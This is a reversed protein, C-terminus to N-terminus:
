LGGKPSGDAAAAEVVPAFPDWAVVRRGARSSVRATRGGRRGLGIIGAFGPDRVM